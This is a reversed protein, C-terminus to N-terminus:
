IRSSQTKPPAKCLSGGDEGGTGWILFVVLLCFLLGRAMLWGAPLAELNGLHTNQSSCHRIIRWVMDTQVLFRRVPVLPKCFLLVIFPEFVVRMESM